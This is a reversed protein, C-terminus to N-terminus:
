QSECIKKALCIVPYYTVLAHYVQSSLFRIKHESDCLSHQDNVRDKIAKYIGYVPLFQKWDVGFLKGELNKM